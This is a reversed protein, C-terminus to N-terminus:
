PLGLLCTVIIGMKYITFSLGLFVAVCPTPSPTLIWVWVNQGQLRAFHSACLPPLVAFHFSAPRLTGPGPNTPSKPTLSHTHQKEKLYIFAWTHLGGM